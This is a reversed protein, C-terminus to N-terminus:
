SYGHHSCFHPGLITESHENEVPVLVFANFLAYICAKFLLYKHHIIIECQVVNKNEDHIYSFYVSNFM